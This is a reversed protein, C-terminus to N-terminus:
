GKLVRHCQPPSRLISGFSVSDFKHRRSLPTEMSLPALFALLLLLGMMQTSNKSAKQNMLPKRAMWGGWGVGVFTIAWLGATVSGRSTSTAGHGGTCIGGLAFGM